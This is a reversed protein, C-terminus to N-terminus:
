KYTRFTHQLTQSCTTKFNIGITSTSTNNYLPYKTFILSLQISNSTETYVQQSQIASTDFLTGAMIFEEEKLKIITNM